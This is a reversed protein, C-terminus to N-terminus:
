RTAISLEKRIRLMWRQINAIDLFKRKRKVAFQLYNVISLSDEDGITNLQYFVKQMNKIKDYKGNRYLVLEYLVYNLYNNEEPEFNEIGNYFRLIATEDFDSLYLPLFNLDKKEKLAKFFTKKAKQLDKKVKLLYALKLYSDLNPSNLAEEPINKLSFFIYYMTTQNPILSYDHKGSDKIRKADEYSLFDILSAFLYSRGGKSLQKPNLGFFKDLNYFLYVIEKENKKDFEYPIHLDFLPTVYENLNVKYKKALKVTKIGKMFLTHNLIKFKKTLYDSYVKFIDKSPPSLTLSFLFNEPNTAVKVNKGTLLSTHILYMKVLRPKFTPYLLYIRYFLRFANKFEGKRYFCMAVQFVSKPTLVFDPYASLLHSVLKLGIKCNGIKIAQEVYVPIKEPPIILIFNDWNKVFEQLAKEPNELLLFYNKILEFKRKETPTLNEVNIQRITEKLQTTNGLKFLSDAYLFLLRDSIKRNKVRSLSKKVFSACKVPDEKSCISVANLFIDMEEEKEETAAFPSIFSFSVLILVVVISRFM